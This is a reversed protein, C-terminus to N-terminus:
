ASTQADLYSQLIVAAAAADVTGSPARGPKRRGPEPRAARMRHEAESTSFREDWTHIPITTFARLRAIFAETTEAQPGRRGNLSLPMGVVIVESDRSQAERVVAQWDADTGRREIVGAPVALRTLTDGSALGIRREGVDLAIVRM